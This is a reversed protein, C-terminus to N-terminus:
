NRYINFNEQIDKIDAPFILNQNTNIKELSVHSLIITKKRSPFSSLIINWLEKDSNSFPEDIIIINSNVLLSKLIFLRRLEGASFTQLQRNSIKNIFEIRSFDGFISHALSFLNESLSFLTHFNINYIEFFEKVTGRFLPMPLLSISINKNLDKKSNTKTIFNFFHDIKKSEILSRAFSTKGSGSEGYINIIM